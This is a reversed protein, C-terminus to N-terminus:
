RCSTHGKLLNLNVADGMAEYGLDNPHLHGGGSDYKPNLELPNDPDRVAKDFDVVGDFAGSTRVWHNVAERVLERAPTYNASGQFPTLTGGVITLCAAHAKAIIQEMGAIVQAAAADSSQIDNIGELLIVDTVGLQDIVDRDVRNLASVGSTPVDKLIQNGGIGENIVSHTSTRRALWDPWRGNADITSFHGDTISDGFAVVTGHVTSGRVDVGDLFFWSPVLAQFPSGGPQATWDGPQSVYTTAEAENHWSAPGTAVPFFLSVVLDEGRTVNLNVPDSVVEQGIPITVTGSRSFTVTRRSGAAIDPGSTQKAVSAAGVMVPQTGYANSLRIRLADGTVDSHIVMRVTQDDFGASSTGTTFPQQVANRWAATWANGAAKAAVVTPATSAPAQAAIPIVVLLATVAAASAAVAITSRWM